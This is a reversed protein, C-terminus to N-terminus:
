PTRQQNPQLIPDQASAPRNERTAHILGTDDTFFNLYGYNGARLALTYATIRGDAEPKDPTYQLTYRGSQAETEAQRSAPGLPELSSPFSRETSEYAALAQQLGTIAAIAHVESEAKTGGLHWPLALWAILVLSLLVFAWLIINKTLSRKRPLAAGIDPTQTLDV